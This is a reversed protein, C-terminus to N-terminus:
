TCKFPNHKKESEEAIEAVNILAEISNDYDEIDCILAKNSLERYKNKILNKTIGVLYPKIDMSPKLLKYNRWVALFVDSTLEEIDESSSICNKLITYIYSSYSTILQELNLEGNDLFDNLIRDSM